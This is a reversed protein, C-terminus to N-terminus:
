NLQQGTINYQKGDKIIVVKGNEIVKQVSQEPVEQENSNENIGDFLKVLTNSWIIESEVGNAYVESIGFRYEGAVINDWSHDIFSTDTVGDALMVIHGESDSRYLRYKIIQALNNKIEYIRVSYSDDSVITFLADKGEYKGVTAGQVTGISTVPRQEDFSNLNIDYDFVSNGFLLLHPSGDKATIPWVGDISLSTTPGNIIRQGQRDFLAM